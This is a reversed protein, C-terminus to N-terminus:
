YSTSPGAPGSRQGVFDVESLAVERRLGGDATSTAAWAEGSADDDAAPADVEEMEAALYERRMREEDEDAVTAIETAEDPEANARRREAAEDEVLVTVDFVRLRYHPDNRWARIAHRDVGDWAPHDWAPYHRRMEDLPALAPMFEKNKVTPVENKRPRIYRARVGALDIAPWGAEYRDVVKQFREALGDLSDCAQLRYELNERSTKRVFSTQRTEDWKKKYASARALEAESWTTRDLPALHAKMKKANRAKHSNSEARRHHLYISDTIGFKPHKSAPNAFQFRLKKTAIRDKRPSASQSDDYSSAPSFSGSDSSAPDTPVATMTESPSASRVPSPTSTTAFSLSPLISSPSPFIKSSKAFGSLRARISNRTM